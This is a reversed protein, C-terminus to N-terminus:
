WHRDPRHRIEIWVERVEEEVFLPVSVPEIALGGSSAPAAGSKGGRHVVAVDRLVERVDPPAAEVLAIREDLRAEYGAPLVIRIQHRLAGIFEHHFDPWFAPDELYPDMGPFLSKM